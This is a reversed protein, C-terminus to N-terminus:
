NIKLIREGVSGSELKRNLNFVVAAVLAAGLAFGSMEDSFIMKYDSTTKTLLNYSEESFFRYSYIGIIFVIIGMVMDIILAAFEIAQVKVKSNPTKPARRHKAYAKQRSSSERTKSVAKKHSSIHSKSRGTKEFLQKQDIELTLGGKIRTSDSDYSLYAKDAENLKEAAIYVINSGIKLKDTLYFRQKLIRVENLYIGNKSDLDEVYLCNNTMSIKCHKNSCMDDDIHVQCIKRSRGLLVYEGDSLKFKKSKGVTQAVIFYVEL